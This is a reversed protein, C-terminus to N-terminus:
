QCDPSRQILAPLLLQLGEVPLNLNLLLFPVVTLKGRPAM